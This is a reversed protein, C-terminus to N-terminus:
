LSATLDDMVYQCWRLDDTRDILKRYVQLALLVTSVTLKLKGVWDIDVTV